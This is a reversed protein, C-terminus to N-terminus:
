SRGKMDCCFNGVCSGYIVYVIHERPGVRACFQSYLGKLCTRVARDSGMLGDRFISGLGAVPEM